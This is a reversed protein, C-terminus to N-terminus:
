VDLKKAIIKSRVNYQPKDSITLYIRGLYEGILGLSVLILGGLILIVSFMLTFGTAVHGIFLKRIIAILAVIFGLTAVVGGIFSSMRLPVISFNVFGDMWLLLMRKLNYGSQGEIRNRHNADINTIKNTIQMMYGLMTPFPSKYNKIAEVMMGNIAYLSSLHVDKPKGVTYHMISTNMDSAFKKFFSHSKEPFNAYVVDYGEDIKDILRFIDHPDHQGDDDMYILYDIGHMYELPVLRGTAQGYNKSMDFGSVFDYKECLEKIYEFTEDTSGDNVLYVYLDLDKNELFIDNLENVVNVINKKSYYCPITIAIKKL